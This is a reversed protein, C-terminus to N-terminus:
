KWLTVFVRDGERYTAFGSYFGQIQMDCDLSDLELNTVVRNDISDITVNYGLKESIVGEYRNKASILFDSMARRGTPRLSPSLKSIRWQDRMHSLDPIMKWIEDDQFILKEVNTINLVVM